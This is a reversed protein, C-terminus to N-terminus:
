KELEYIRNELKEIIRELHEICDACFIEDGEDINRRCADCKLTASM